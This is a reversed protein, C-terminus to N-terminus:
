QKEYYDSEKPFQIEGFLFISPASGGNWKNGKGAARVAGKCTFNNRDTYENSVGKRCPIIFYPAYNKRYPQVPYSYLM